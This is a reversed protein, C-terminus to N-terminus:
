SVKRPIFHKEDRYEKLWMREAEQYITQDWNWDPPNGVWKDPSIHAESWERAIDRYLGTEDINVSQGSIHDCAIGLVAVKHGIEQIQCSILRDYFHHIPFDDRFTLGKWAVRRIAM